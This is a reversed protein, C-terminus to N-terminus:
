WLSLTYNQVQFFLPRNCHVAIYFSRLPEAHVGCYIQKGLVYVSLRFSRNGPRAGLVFSSCVM